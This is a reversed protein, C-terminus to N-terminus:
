VAAFIVYVPIVWGVVGGQPRIPTMAGVRAGRCPYGDPTLGRKVMLYALRNHIAEGRGLVWAAAVAQAEASPFVIENNVVSVTPWGSERLRVNFQAEFLAPAGPSNSTSPAISVISVTLADTQGDDGDGMTVYARVPDGCESDDYCKLLAEFSNTLLHDAIKYLWNCCAADPSGCSGDPIAM